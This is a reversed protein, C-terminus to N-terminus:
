TETVTKRTKKDFYFSKKLHLAPTEVSDNSACCFLECSKVLIATAKTQNSYSTLRAQIDGRSVLLFMDTDIFERILIGRERDKREVSAM